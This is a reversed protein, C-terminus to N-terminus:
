TNIEKVVYGGEIINAEAVCLRFDTEIPKINTDIIHSSAGMIFKYKVKDFHKPFPIDPTYTLNSIKLCTIPSVCRGTVPSLNKDIEIWTNSGFPKYYKASISTKTPKATGQVKPLCFYVRNPTLTLFNEEKVTYSKFVWYTYGVKTIDEIKRQFIGNLAEQAHPGIITLLFSM